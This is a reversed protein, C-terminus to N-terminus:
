GLAYSSVTMTALLIAIQTMENATANTAHRMQLLLFHHRESIRLPPGLGAVHPLRDLLGRETGLERQSMGRERRLREVSTM